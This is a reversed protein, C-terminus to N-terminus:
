EFSLGSPSMTADVDPTADPGTVKMRIMSVTVSTTLCPPFLLPALMPIRSIQCGSMSFNMLAFSCGPTSSFKLM